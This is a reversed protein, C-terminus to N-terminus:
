EVIQGSSNILNKVEGDVSFSWHYGHSASYYTRDLSKIEGLKRHGLWESHVVLIDYNRGPRKVCIHSCWGTHRICDHGSINEIARITAFNDLIM